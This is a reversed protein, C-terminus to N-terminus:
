RQKTSATKASSTTSRRSSSRATITTLSSVPRHGTERDVCTDLIFFHDNDDDDAVSDCGGTTVSVNGINDPVRSVIRENDAMSVWETPCGACSSTNTVGACVAKSLHIYDRTTYEVATGSGVRTCRGLVFASVSWEFDTVFVGSLAPGENEDSGCALVEGRGEDCGCSLTKSVTEGQTCADDDYHRLELTTGSVVYRANSRCAGSYFVKAGEARDLACTGVAGAHLLAVAADERDLRM